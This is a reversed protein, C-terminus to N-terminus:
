GKIFVEWDQPGREWYPGAGWYPELVFEYLLFEGLLILAVVAWTPIRRRWRVRLGYLVVIAPLVTEMVRLIVHRVRVPDQLWDTLAPILGVDQWM